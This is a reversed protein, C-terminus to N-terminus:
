SEDALRLEVNGSRATGTGIIRLERSPLFFAFSLSGQAVSYKWRLGCRSAAGVLELAPVRALLDDVLAVVFPGAARQGGELPDDNALTGAGRVRRASISRPSM